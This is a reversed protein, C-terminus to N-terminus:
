FVDAGGKKTREMAWIIVADYDLDNKIIVHENCILRMRHMEASRGVLDISLYNNPRGERAVLAASRIWNAGILTGGPRVALKAYGVCAVFSEASSALGFCGFETVLDYTETTLTGHWPMLADIILYKQVRRRMEALHEESKGLMQLVDRYCAPVEDSQIFSYLVALMEPCVDSCSISTIDSLAISWLLTSPGSGLDLWTGAPAYRRLTSLIQETGQDPRFPGHYHRLFYRKATALREPALTVGDFALLNM